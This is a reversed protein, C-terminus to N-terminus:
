HTKKKGCTHNTRMEMKQTACDAGMNLMGETVAMLFLMSFNIVIILIINFRSFLLQTKRPLRIELTPPSKHRYLRVIASQYNKALKSKKISIILFIIGKIIKGVLIHYVSIFLEGTRKGMASSAKARVGDMNLLSSLFVYQVNVTIWSM